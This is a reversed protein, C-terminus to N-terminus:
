VLKVPKPPRYGPRIIRNQRAAEASQNPVAIVTACSVCRCLIPIGKLWAMAARPDPVTGEIGCEPCEYIVAAGGLARLATQKDEETIPSEPAVRVEAKGSAEAEGPDGRDAGRDEAGSEAESEERDEREHDGESM